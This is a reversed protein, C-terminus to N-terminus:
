SNLMFKLRQMLTLKVTKMREEYDKRSKFEFYHVISDWAIATQCNALWEYGEIGPTRGVLFLRGARLEIQAYEIIIGDEAARPSNAYVLLLKGSFDPVNNLEHQEM